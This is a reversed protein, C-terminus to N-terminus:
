IFRNVERIKRDGVLRAPGNTYYDLFFKKYSTSSYIPYYIVKRVLDYSFEDTACTSKM